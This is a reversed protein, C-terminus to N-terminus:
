SSGLKLDAGKEGKIGSFGEPVYFLCNEFQYSKGSDLLVTTSFKMFGFLQCDNIQSAQQAWALGVVGNLLIMFFIKKGVM